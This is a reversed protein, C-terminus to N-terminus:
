LHQRSNSRNWKDYKPAKEEDHIPCIIVTLFAKIATQYCANSKQEVRYRGCRRRSYEIYIYEVFTTNKTCTRQSCRDIHETVPLVWFDLARSDHHHVYQHKACKKGNEVYEIHKKPIRYFCRIQLPANNINVVM